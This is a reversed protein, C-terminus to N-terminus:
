GVPAGAGDPLSLAALARDPVFDCWTGDFPFSGAEIAHIVAHGEARIRGAKAEDWYGPLGTVAALEAEDKWEWSRDAAVVLDLEHDIVDVVASGGGVSSSPRDELNVYWGDFRGDAFFWWVSHAAGHPMLILADRHAWTSEVLEAAGWDEVPAARLPAGDPATRFAFGAGIPLWVLVGRDTDSVVTCAQLWSVNVGRLYRRLLPTGPALRTSIDAM